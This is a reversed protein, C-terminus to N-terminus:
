TAGRGGEEPIMSSLCDSIKGPSAPRRPPNLAPLQARIAGHNLACARGGREAPRRPGLPRVHARQGANKRPSGGCISLSAFMHSPSTRDCVHAGRNRAEGKNARGIGHVRGM